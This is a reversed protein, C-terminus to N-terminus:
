LSGNQYHPMYDFWRETSRDPKTNLTVVVCSDTYLVTWKYKKWNKLFRMYNLTTYNSNRATFYYHTIFSTTNLSSVFIILTSHICTSSRTHQSWNDIVHKEIFATRHSTVMLRTSQWKAIPQYGLVDTLLIWKNMVGNCQSYDTTQKDTCTAKKTCVKIAM